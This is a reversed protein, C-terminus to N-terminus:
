DGKGTTNTVCRNAYTHDIRGSESLEFEDYHSCEARLEELLDWTLLRGDPLTGGIDVFDYDDEYDSSYGLPIIYLTDATIVVFRGSSTTYFDGKITYM